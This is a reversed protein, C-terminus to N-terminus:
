YKHFFGLTDVVGWALDLMDEEEEKKLPLHKFLKKSLIVHCTSCAMEGGCAGEIDVNYEISIDLLSKGIKGDVSIIKGSKEEKCQFPITNMSRYLHHFKMRKMFFSPISSIM